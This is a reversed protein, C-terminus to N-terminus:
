DASDPTKEDDKLRRKFIGNIRRLTEFTENKLQSYPCIATDRRGILVYDVNRLFCKKKLERCVARMRRKTLNRYHAKGLRKTATFGIRPLDNKKSEDCFAAQIMVNNHKLTVDKAAKLFDKRKKLVLYKAM